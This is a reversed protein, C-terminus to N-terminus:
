VGRVRVPVDITGVTPAGDLRAPEFIFQQMHYYIRQQMDTGMPPGTRPTAAQVRGVPDVTVRVMVTRTRVGREVRPARFQISRIARDMDTDRARPPCYESRGVRLEVENDVDLRLRVTREEEAEPLEERAAFVLSQVSDAALPTTSHEIVDRRINTGDADYAMSLLIHGADLEQDRWLEMVEAELATVDVLEDPSPLSEPTDLVQCARFTPSAAESLLAGRDPAGNTACAALLLSTAVFFRAMILDLPADIRLNWTDPDLM